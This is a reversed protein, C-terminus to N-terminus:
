RGLTAVPAYGQPARHNSEGISVTADGIKEQGGTSVTAGGIAAHGGNSFWRMVLVKSQLKPKKPLSLLALLM